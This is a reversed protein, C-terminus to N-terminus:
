DYFSEGEEHYDDFDEEPFERKDEKIIEPLITYIFRRWAQTSADV